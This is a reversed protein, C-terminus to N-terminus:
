LSLTEGDDPIMVQDAIGMKRTFDHLGARTLRAHNVADMHSAIITAKPAAQTVQYVDDAGMIIPTGDDFQAHAANVVIVEPRYTDITEQVGAYWVTDGAVYLTKEGPAQFVVGCAEAPLGFKDYYQQANNGLGHAAETKFLEIGVFCVGERSLATVSTFGLERMDHYEGRNQTFIPMNKPLADKARADFHDFHHMHTVIVADVAVLYEIPVPLSVLPNLLTNHPSPVSYSSGKDAFFPDLLFKKGSFTIIATAGRIQQFHM